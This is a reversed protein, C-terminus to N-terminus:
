LLWGGSDLHVDGSIKMRYDARGDGNVDLSLVTIGAAFSLTMEGAQHSFAGVLHFAQDGATNSDADIASLDLRDGQGTLLDNVTDVEIAGAIQMSEQRVVFTDAGAGGVLIDSGAGGILTDAGNMGKLVDDGAGGDLTNNGVNGTMGNALGNGTGAIDGVGDLVLNEIDAALTFNATARVLDTGQGAFEFTTDLTDDVYYIDDGLGGSLVDGGTGGDLLDNGDGGALSDSGGGGNLTDRGVGGILADNDAGGDLLDDGGGGVLTDDGNGGDLRDSDNQGDLSDAGDGGYLMDAGDGGLLTDAGLGGKIMDEGGAGDLHNDGSNGVMTNAQGNGVGDINASGDLLLREINVGLTWSIQAVVIDNGEGSEENITDGLDDVVYSDDGTGGAMADAGTGGDLWDGESGGSLNDVGTGGYLVDKGIGGSLRDADAGGDLTDDGADGNLTDAGALGNLIDAGGGGSLTDNAADGDQLDAGSGGTFSVSRSHGYLIYAAGSNNGNYDAYKAGIILDDYGDGNVDGASAVSIGSQDGPEVGNLKFGNSGNLSSLDLNASFGGSKGFVLYSAGSLNGNPDAQNAGIILDDYGDNDFDGASAVSFGARDDAAVGSLKFGNTGDLTSLNLNASFGGAGGTSAHGFVVYAAGSNAGHPDAQSAGIIVDDYGDGNVDGASAVSKGTTDGSTVGSLKFGNTGDLASLDINAGFGSAKGFVVYSAGSSSGKAGVILDGYGDGNVDGASAVSVGAQDSAAVGSIQFGNTGNLTSLDLDQAFGGAKGFVVYSAGSSAGHPDARFAGVIMDDFGDHNVDGASAVSYGSNDYNAGGHLLFGNTGNLTALDLNAAFGSAKGFVVYTIGAYSDAGYAGVILDDYGDGNIDGASAVSFGTYDFEVAGSLRFGNTGNLAGLDLYVPLGGGTRGFVVYAVGLNDDAHIAGVIFDDVGDGNVDGASAVSYGANDGGEAGAVVVGNAGDLDYLEIVAEFAPM